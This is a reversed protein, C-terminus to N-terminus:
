PAAPSADQAPIMGREVRGPSQAPRRVTAEPFADAQAPDATPRPNRSPAPRVFNEPVPVPAPSAPVPAPASNKQATQLSEFRKRWTRASANADKRKREATENKKELSAVASRTKKLESEVQALTEPDVQESESSRFVELEDNLKQLELNRDDLRAELHEVKWTLAGHLPRYSYGFAIIAGAVFLGLGILGQRLWGPFKFESEM